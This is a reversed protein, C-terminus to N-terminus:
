DDRLGLRVKEPDGKQFGMEDLLMRYGWFLAHFLGKERIKALIHEPRKIFWRLGDRPLDPFYAPGPQGLYQAFYDADEPLLHRRHVWVKQGAIQRPSIWGSYTSFNALVLDGFYKYMLLNYIAQDTNFVTATSAICREELAIAFAEEILRGMPGTKDLGVINAGLLAKGRRFDPAVGCGRCADEHAHTLLPLDTPVAFYGLRAIALFVEPMPALVTTGADLWLVQDAPADQWCWFKWTYHKRWHPCFPPITRVPVQHEWLLDLTEERLGLDYVLIPPHGPWNCNLSGILALLSSAYGESAATIILQTKKTM